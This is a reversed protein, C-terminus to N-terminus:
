PKPPFWSGLGPYAPPVMQEEWSDLEGGIADSQADSGLNTTEALDAALDYVELWPEGGTNRIIKRDGVRAAAEERGHWRWFLRDHPADALTGDLFPVVDVGDLPKDAFLTAESDSGAAAVLTAAIDLSSVPLDYREGAPLAAPWRVAFPVRLGGEYPTSKHGRLPENSSANNRAGGNDSLFFVITNEEIGRRDLADLVRGIGDDMSSVMAAYTRRREPEISAFEALKADTAQMPTHPANYALYLFFPEDDGRDRDIFEVAADSLEDTLYESTKVREGNHLLKTRYWAWRESVASLDELTLSEAFYDHGGSLFGYFEDFGRDRPQLGPYTGLHWKGVAMSEYGAPGLMEALTRETTPVGNPVAPNVTPNISSGFRDQYRGTILGARSPGCVAATVYGNTFVIGGSAIRDIHPTGFETLGNFGVDAYGLDDAIIVVVNPRSGVHSEAQEQTVDDM